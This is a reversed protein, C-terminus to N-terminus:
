TPIARYENLFLDPIMSVMTNTVKDAVDKSDGNGTYNVTTAFNINQQTGTYGQSGQMIQAIKKDWLPDTAYEHVGGNHRMSSLTTQGQKYYNEAIWKAGEIIGQSASDNGYKLANDANNDFAGIGYFNGAKAYSSTGWGTELASHAVLYRPDLGSEQSAKMYAEGMNYMSSGKPAISNIWKNLDAATLTSVTSALDHKTVDQSTWYEGMGVSKGGVGGGGYSSSSLTNMTGIIGNQAKATMLLMESKRIIDEQKTVLESESSLNVNRKDQTKEQQNTVEKESFEESKNFWGGVKDGIGGGAKGGLFYGGIGGIAGGIITGLPGVMTGLAAGGKAGAAAGGWQGVKEGGTKWKNDSKAVDYIDKGASIAVAIPGLFKSAKGLFGKGAGLAKAGWGVADDAGGLAVKGLGEFGPPTPTKGGFTKTVFGGVKGMFGGAGAAGAAKSLVFKSTMLKTLGQTMVASIASGGFAGLGTALGTAGAKMTSKLASDRAWLNIAGTLERMEDTLDNDAVKLEGMQKALESVSKNFDSSAEWNEKNKDLTGEGTKESSKLFKDIKEESFNGGSAEIFNKMEEIGVGLDGFIDDLNSATLAANGGNLELLGGIIQSLNAASAGEEQVRKYEYRGNPGQFAPNSAAGLLLGITSNPDASQIGNSMGGMFNELNEGQFSKGGISSIYGALGVIRGLEEKPVNRGKIQGDIISQLAKLQDEERGKMGSRELAGLFGEHLDRQEDATKVQSDRFLSSAFGTAADQSVNGFKSFEATNQALALLQDPTTEGKSGLLANGIDLMETGNKGIFLGSEQFDSRLGTYNAVGTRNGVSISTDGMSEWTSMGSQYTNKVSNVATLLSALSIAFAREIIRGDWENRHPTERIDTEQIQRAVQDSKEFLRELEKLTASSEELLKRIRKENERDAEATMESKTNSGILNTLETSLSTRKNGSASKLEEQIEGIRSENTIYEPSNKGTYAKREAIDNLEKEAVLKVTELRNLQYASTGPEGFKAEHMNNINIEGSAIKNLTDHNKLRSDRDPISSYSSRIQEANYSNVRGTIVAREGARIFGKTENILHKSAESLERQQKELQTAFDVLVEPKGGPRPTYMQSTNGSSGLENNRAAEKRAVNLNIRRMQENFKQKEAATQKLQQTAGTGSQASMKRDLHVNTNGAMQQLQITKYALENKAKRISKFDTETMKSRDAKQLNVIRQETREIEKLMDNVQKLSTLTDAYQRPDLELNIHYDTRKAM